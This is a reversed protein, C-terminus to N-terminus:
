GAGSGRASIQDRLELLEAAIDGPVQPRALGLEILHLAEPYRGCETALSAASRLLVSETPQGTRQEVAILAAERELEFARALLDQDGGSVADSREALDMAERHLHEIM